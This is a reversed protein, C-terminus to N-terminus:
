PGYNDSREFIPIARIKPTNPGVDRVRVTLTYSESRKVKIEACKQHWYAVEDKSARVVWNDITVGDRPSGVARCINRENHNVLVAEITMRLHALKERDAEGGAGEIELLLTMEGSHALRFHFVHEGPQDLSFSQLGSYEDPPFVAAVLLTCSTESVYFCVLVMSLLIRLGYEMLM